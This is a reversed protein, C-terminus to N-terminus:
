FLVFLMIKEIKTNCPGLLSLFEMLLVMQHWLLVLMLLVFIPSIALVIEINRPHMVYLCCCCSSLKVVGGQQFQFGLYIYELCIDWWHLMRPMVLLVLNM